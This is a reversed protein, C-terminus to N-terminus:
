AALPLPPGALAQEVTAICAFRGALVQETRAKIEDMGYSRGVAKTRKRAARTRRPRSRANNSATVRWSSRRPTTTRVPVNTSAVGSGDALM